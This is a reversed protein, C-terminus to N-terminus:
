HISNHITPLKFKKYPSRPGFELQVARDNYIEDLDHSSDM